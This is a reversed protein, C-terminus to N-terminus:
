PLYEGKLYKKMSENEYTVRYGLSAPRWLGKGGIGGDEAKVVRVFAEKPAGVPCHVDANFGKGMTHGFTEKRAMTDTMLTPGLWARTASQHGGSRFMAQYQTEANRALGDPNIEHGKLSGHSAQYMNFWMLLVGPPIASYYRARCMMRSLRYDEDEKKWGRYPRDDPDADIWVYDGDDIGLAQADLPNINVYAESVWPMRKDRRKLDGFPGFYISVIDLDVPMTHAGHRYKPTLFPFTYGDKERPHRTRKLEQWSRVINRVQRVETSLNETEIGYEEPPNPRLFGMPRGVIVNPEFITADIPERYVPLNEGHRIFEPEERYFELRGTKTYWPKSEQHQEWGVVKPYTRHLLPTPIGEKAKREIEEIRYGKLVQTKDIIRQLYAEVNNDRVFKWHDKFRKEGTLNALKEAVGAFMEIDGMTDYIRPLPSRPFVLLFPNTVSATMDPYKLEAWSDVGFVVDSYECSLTWWWENCVIQEIRPLTNHILDYTWKANGLLSNSNAFWLSKTPTPMHTKGTFVTNGVRLPRDGYNYYHASEFKFYYRQRAPKEPALEQHFPDELYYQPTGSFTGIRYNGAYSGPTGGLKGVNGTLAAILFLGRDKLPANFFHNPGMGAAFLTAGKHAAIQRALGIVADSSTGTIEAVTEPSFEELYEKTVDFVTRVEVERGDVTQVTFKGELVAETGLDDFKAGVHDRTLIAPGNRKRDWVAFDGWENRLSEPIVQANQLPTDPPKEGERLLKVYNALDAPRYDAIIDSARLYELNDNRLLVPLDTFRRLYDADFLNEKVLVHAVGLALAQDTGPRIIIVEDSKNATAQYEITVNIVKKGKLRAETLWHSDPMKTCTWNMGWITILGAQETAFLDFDVTQQGTVMPHGPPLDTHWSYNDWYRAGVAKEPGTKRVHHDLLALMNSFRGLGGVRTVGLLHMGGRHKLCLTGIGKQAEIMAPDYGQARLYERGKEGSYTKAINVYTKAVMEFVEEYPLKLWQDKGRRFYKEPPKGTRADRPHGAKVWDRYGKRVMAGKVRRDGYFRRHLVLGKQCCRPEWRHSPRNGYLDEAKGYGYTPMIRTIVGNRVYARLLCEHTDNPACTFVFTDDYRYKDRYIREWERSPYGSLPNDIALPQLFALKPSGAALGAAGALSWKLFDRRSFPHM